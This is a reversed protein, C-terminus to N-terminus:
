SATPLTHALVEIFPEWVTLVTASQEGPLEGAHNIAARADDSGDYCLLIMATHGRAPRSRPM